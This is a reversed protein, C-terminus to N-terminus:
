RCNERLYEQLTHNLQTDSESIQRNRNRWEIVSDMFKNSRNVESQNVRVPKEAGEGLRFFVKSERYLNHNTQIMSYNDRQVAVDGGIEGSTFGFEKKKGIPPLIKGQVEQNTDMELEATSLLTPFIDILEVPSRVTDPEQGPIHVGLPVNIVGQYPFSHTWRMRGKGYEGLMEGHNSTVVVVTEDMEGEKKLYDLLRGVQQDAASVDRDYMSRIYDLDEEGLEVTQNELELYHKGNRYRLDDLIEGDGSGWAIDYKRLTGTYNEGFSADTTADGYPAHPDYGHVFMFYRDDEEKSDLWNIARPVSTNMWPGQQHYTDFGQDYGYRKKLHGGGCRRNGVFGATSYGSESFVETLTTAKESIKERQSRVGHTEPYQSLFFSVTSPITWVSQSVANTYKVNEDMFDCINPTTVRNHGYCEMRDQNLNNVMVVVVNYDGESGDETFGLEPTQLQMDGAFLSISFFLFFLTCIKLATYNSM